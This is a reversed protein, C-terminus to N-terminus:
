LEVSKGSAIWRSPQQRITGTRRRGSVVISLVVFHIPCRFQRTADVLLLPSPVSAIACWPVAPPPARMLALWAEAERGFVREASNALDGRM